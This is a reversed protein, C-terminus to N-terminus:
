KAPSVQLQLVADEGSAEVAVGKWLDRGEVISTKDGIKVEYRTGSDATFWEPFQNIRPYDVPLHLYEKHRARDFVIKGTWPKTATLTLKLTDGDRVAGLCVDERWPRITAGQSKWLAYMISTRAFNGDGHWGEVIGDPKQIRWMVKISSDIWDAVSDIRERNYLNIAGEISDAYEDALVHEAGWIHNSYHPKLNSLVHRVADRYATTDDVLYVTYFGNYNYGWTDCLAPSDPKGTRNNVMNYLLGHENRGIELIRDFMAHIPEEYRKKREPDSRSVAFYLESLGGIAECGHDRFRITELTRTPHQDFLYYDGLRTAWELYKRNGTIWFVRCSVQLLDGNVEINTSPILGYPTKVKAHKWIDDLIGLLRGSWPSPGLWETLPMLGDKCYEAAGFIIDEMNPQDTLFGRKSFSYTDPLRDVRSCLRTEVGLIDLMQGRFLKEDTLASTLVMFPYNDAACDKANWIDKDKSLNRPFLGSAPDVHKLWGTVFRHSRSLAENAQRGNQAAIAFPDVPRSTAGNEAMPVILGILIAMLHSMM